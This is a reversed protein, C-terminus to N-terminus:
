NSQGNDKGELLDLMEIHNRQIRVGLLCIFVCPGLLVMNMGGWFGGVFFIGAMLYFLKIWMKANQKRQSM